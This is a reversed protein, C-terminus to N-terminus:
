FTEFEEIIAKERACPADDRCWELSRRCSALVYVGSMNKAVQERLATEHDRLARGCSNAEDWAEMVEEDCAWLEDRMDFVALRLTEFHVTTPTVMPLVTHAAFFGGYLGLALFMGCLELIRKDNKTWCIHLLRRPMKM